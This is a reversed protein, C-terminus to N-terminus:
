GASSRGAPHGRRRGLAAALHQHRALAWARVVGNGRGRQLTPSQRTISTAPGHAVDRNPTDCTVNLLRSTANREM